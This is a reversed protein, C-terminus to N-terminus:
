VGMDHYGRVWTMIDLCGHASVQVVVCICFRWVKAGIREEKSHIVEQLEKQLREIDMKHESVNLESAM